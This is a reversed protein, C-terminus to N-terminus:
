PIWESEIETKSCEIQTDEGEGAVALWSRAFKKLRVSSGDEMQCLSSAYFEKKLM